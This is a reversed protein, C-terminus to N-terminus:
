SSGQTRDKRDRKLASRRRKKELRRERSAATPRTPSRPRSRHAADALLGTMRALAIERNRYQSRTEDCVVTITGSSARRGLRRAMHEKLENPLSPSGALDFRLEARTNSRNAHQGGPGRSPSFNWELEGEPILHGAVQM